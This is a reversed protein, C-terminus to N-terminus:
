CKTLSKIRELERVKKELAATKETLEKLKDNLWNKEVPSEDIKDPILTLLMLMDKKADQYFDLWGELKKIHWLATAHDKGFFAGTAALTLGYQRNLIYMSFRRAKVMDKEQSKGTIIKHTTGFYDAVIEIVQEAKM